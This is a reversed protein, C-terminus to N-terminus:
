SSITRSAVWTKNLNLMITYAREYADSIDNMFPTSRTAATRASAPRRLNIVYFSPVKKYGQKHTRLHNYAIVALDPFKFDYVYMSFKEIQQKIFQNVVAHSQGVGSRRRLYLLSQPM